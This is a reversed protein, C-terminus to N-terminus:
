GESFYSKTLQSSSHLGILIPFYFNINWGFWWGAKQYCTRKHNSIEHDSIENTARDTNSVLIGRPMWKNMKERDMAQWCFQASDGMNLCGLNSEFQITTYGISRMLEGKKLSFFRM